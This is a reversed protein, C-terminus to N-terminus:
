HNHNRNHNCSIQLRNYDIVIVRNRNSSTQNKTWKWSFLNKPLLDRAPLDSPFLEQVHSIKYPYCHLINQLIKHVTSVPRYFTQISGGESCPKVADSSEEQVATAMEELVTSDNRKIKRGCQVDFSGIKKFKQIMKLLDQVTM